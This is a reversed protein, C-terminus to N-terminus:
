DDQNDQTPPEPLLMWHTASYLEASISRENVWGLPCRYCTVVSLGNTAIIRSELEQPATEIPQWSTTGVIIDTADPSLDNKGSVDTTLPTAECLYILRDGEDPHHNLEAINKSGYIRPLAGPYQCAWGGWKEHKDALAHNAASAADQTKIAKSARAASRMRDLRIRAFKEGDDDVCLNWGLLMGSAYNSDAIACVRLDDTKEPVREALKALVAQEALQIAKRGEPDLLGHFGLEEIILREDDNSLVREFKSM